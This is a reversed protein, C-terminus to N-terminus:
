LKGNYVYIPVHVHIHVNDYGYLSIKVKSMKHHAADVESTHSLTMHCRTRSPQRSHVKPSQKCLFLLGLLRLFFGRAPIM